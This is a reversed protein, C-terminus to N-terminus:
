YRTEFGQYAPDKELWEINVSAVHAAMPGVRIKKILEDIIGREGVAEVEVRGDPLNRAWGTLKLNRAHAVVFYRFGVGQVVGSVFIRVSSM